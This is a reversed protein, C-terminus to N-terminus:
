VTRLMYMIASRLVYISRVSDDAGAKEVYLDHAKSQNRHNSNVLKRPRVIISCAMAVVRKQVVDAGFCSLSIRIENPSPIVTSLNGDKESGDAVSNEVVVFVSASLLANGGHENCVRCISCRLCCCCWELRCWVVVVVAGFIISTVRRSAACSVSSRLTHASSCPRRPTTNPSSTPVRCTPTACLSMPPRM